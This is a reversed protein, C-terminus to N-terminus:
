GVLTRLLAAYPIGTAGDVYVARYLTPSTPPEDKFSFTDDVAVEATGVLARYVDSVERYIEVLGGSAGEVRGTLAGTADASLSVRISPRAPAEFWELGSRTSLLLQRKGGPAAAYGALQGDVESFPGAQDALIGAYIFSGSVVASDYAGVEPRGGDLLLSVFIGHDVVTTTEQTSASLALLVRTAHDPDLQTWAAWLNTGSAAAAVRGDPSGVRSAFLYQGVWGGRPQPQWDIAASTYTEVVHLERGVLVPAAAPALISSPFGRKTISRTRLRGRADTTVLRLYTKASRLRVAYAFAPRGAADLTLGAPGFMASKRPRAVIRLKGGRNAFALWSGNGEELLASTRGNRDVVLGRIVAWGAPVRGIGAFTWGSPTRRAVVVDRGSLYAVVPTGEPAVALFGPSAPPSPTPAIIEARGPSALALGLALGIWASKVYRNNGHAPLAPNM